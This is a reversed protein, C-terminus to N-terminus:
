KRLLWRMLQPNDRMVELEMTSSRRVLMEESPHEEDKSELEYSLGTEYYICHKIEHWVTDRIQQIDHTPNYKILCLTPVCMGAEDMADEESVTFAKGSIMVGVVPCKPRM